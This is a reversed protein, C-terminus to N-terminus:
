LKLYKKNCFQKQYYKDDNKNFVVTFCPMIRPTYLYNKVFENKNQEPKYPFVKDNINVFWKLPSKV